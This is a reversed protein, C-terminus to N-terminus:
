RTNTSIGGAVGTASPCELDTGEGCKRTCSLTDGQDQCLWYQHQVSASVWYDDLRLTELRTVPHVPHDAFALVKYSTCASLGSLAGLALAIRLTRTM